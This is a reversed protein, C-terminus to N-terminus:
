IKNLLEDAKMKMKSFAFLKKGLDKLSAGIHYLDNDILLFRDHINSKEEILIESYQANHRTLDLQLAGSIKKTYITAKVSTKRKSLLTLVSIDIYNDIVIIESKAREILDSIFKYADFIQGDYFVGEYPPLETRVIFDVKKETETMRDELQEFRQNIAYGRLLYEKLTKTAWIRFEVGRRSKVRYGVSIIMDLNYYSVVRQVERGGEKQVTLFDKVTSIQELEGEKFINRVHLSINQKTTEFLVTMQSQTLWVTDSDIMVELEISNDPQYLIIENKIKAVKTIM